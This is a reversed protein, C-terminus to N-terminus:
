LEAARADVRVLLKKSGNCVLSSKSGSQNWDRKGNPICECPAGFHEPTREERAVLHLQHLDIGHCRRHHRSKNFKSNRWVRDLRYDVLHQRFATFSARRPLDAEPQRERCGGATLWRM